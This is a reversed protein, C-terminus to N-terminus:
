PVLKRITYNAVDVVYATTGVLTLNRPDKFFALSGRGDTSGANTAKLGGALTTVQSTALTIRRVSHDDTLYLFSHDQSIALEVPLKFRAATGIGDTLALNDKIGALTTVVGTAIVIKRLTGTYVETVYLNTGDTAIGLPDKFQAATGTGDVSGAVGSGALTTVVGTAIVIQRIRYGLQDSVYVNTGDTATSAPHDFQATTGAGDVFGHVTTGALATVVGTTKHIKVIRSPPIGYSIAYLYDGSISLGRLNLDATDLALTTMVGTAIEIKRIRANNTDALYLYTGDNTLGLAQNFQAATGTGDLYGAVGVKGAFTSVLWGTSAKVTITITKTVSVGGKTFTATLTVETDSTAATVSATGGSFTVIGAPSAAWTVASGNTGTTPVTFNQTIAASTDATALTLSAVTTADKDANVITTAAAISLPKVTIAITKTDSVGGSTVTVTLTVPTDATPNTVTVTGGTFSLVGAPSASWSYTSGNPGKVPLTFNGLVSAATDTGSLVLVKDSLTLKDAAVAPAGDAAKANVTVQIEKTQSVGGVTVTATLTVTTATAPLTVSVRGSAIAFIGAPASTWTITSANSGATPLKFDQSVTSSTDAGRLEFGAPSLAALDAAVAEAATLVKLPNIKDGMTVFNTCSGLSLLLSALLLMKATKM